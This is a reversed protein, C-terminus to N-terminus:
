PPGVKRSRRGRLFVLISALALIGVVCTGVLVIPLESPPPSNGQTAPSSSSVRLPASGNALTGLADRLEVKVDYVGGVTPLCSWNSGPQSSWGTPLGSYSVVVPPAGGIEGLAVWAIGGLTM